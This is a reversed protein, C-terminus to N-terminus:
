PDEPLLRVPGTNHEPLETPRLIVDGDGDAPVFAWHAPHAWRVTAPEPDILAVYCRDYAPGEPFLVRAGSADFLAGRAVPQDSLALGQCPVAQTAM